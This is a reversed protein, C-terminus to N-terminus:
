APGPQPQNPRSARSRLAPRGRFYAIGILALGLPITIIFLWFWMVSIAVTGAVVLGIGLSPRRPSLLLGSGITIGATMWLLGFVTRLTADDWDGGIGIVRMFGTVVPFSAVALGLLVLARMTMPERMKISRDSRASLGAQVRWTIDSLMGLVARALMEKATRLPPERVLEALRGHEWLDSDIEARRSERVLPQLGSTYLRVWARTVGIALAVTGSM